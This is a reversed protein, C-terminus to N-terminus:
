VSLRGSDSGALTGLGLDAPLTARRQCPDVTKTWVFPEPDENSIALYTDIAGDLERTSRHIGRPLQRERSCRSGASWWTSGRSSGRHARERHLPSSVAAAEGALAADAADQAHRLRRPHPSGEPGAPSDGRDPRPSGPIRRCSAASLVPQHGPREERGTRGVAINHRAAHLSPETTRSAGTAHGAAAAIPGVGSDQGESRGFAQLEVRTNTQGAACALILRARQATAREFM